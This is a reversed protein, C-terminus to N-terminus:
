LCAAEESFACWPPPWMPTTSRARAESSRRCPSRPESRLGTPGTPPWPRSWTLWPSSGPASRSGPGFLGDPYGSGDMREHHQLIMEAVEAPIGGRQLMSAGRQPHERVLAMEGDNLGGPRALIEAPVALKGVDHVRAALDIRAIEQAGLGLETALAVSIEAVRQQHGDTYADRAEVAAALAAVVSRTTGVQREELEKHDTIDLAVVCIGTTDGHARVPYLQVLWDHSRGPDAAVEGTIELKTMAM